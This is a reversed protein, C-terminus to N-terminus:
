SLQFHENQLIHLGTKKQRTNFFKGFFFLYIGKESVRCHGVNRPGLSREVM